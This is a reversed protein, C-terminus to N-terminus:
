KNKKRWDVYLQYAEDPDDYIMELEEASEFKLSILFDEFDPKTKTKNWVRAAIEDQNNEVAQTIVSVKEATEASGQVVEIEEYNNEIARMIWGIYSRINDQKDALSIARDVKEIDYDAKSLMLDLDEGTIKNHGIYKDYLPAYKSLDRPIELQSNDDKSLFRQRKIIDVSPTNRYIHFVISLVKKGKKQGDEFDFRIDSNKELEIKAPELIRKKFDSYKEYKKQSKDLFEYCYDWDIKGRMRAMENKLREDDSNALGIIFKLESLNYEVDVRGDNITPNSKYIDKKLLEYIRFSSSNKFSTMVSLELKTYNGELELVHEKLVDNFKIIFEGNQYDANPILSFAKFNGKGDEMIVSHGTITKAVNKLDRYIHAQDSVLKSLEGPYLRAELGSNQDQCNREIRTLAIAMIQNELLTSRYKASIMENSKKFSLNEILDYKEAM